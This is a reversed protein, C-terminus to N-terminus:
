IGFPFNLGPNCSSRCTNAPLVSTGNQANEGKSEIYETGRFGGRWMLLTFAIKNRMLHPFSGLYKLDHLFLFALFVISTEKLATM